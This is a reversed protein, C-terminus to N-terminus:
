EPMRVCDETIFEEANNVIPPLGPAVVSLGQSERNAIEFNLELLLKLPDDKPKIGYAEGVATDLEAQVKRLLHDGPLDLTRYLERLSWQNKTMVKRRLQRLKVASAAVKKVQTLTPSQPFPFSDFVTNSTYRFDGKLTSCRAMFWSWHIGSQLIGFSYDDNLSFVQLADNPHINNHIFEFIPRKTVRACVIYRTIKSIKNLMEPRGRWFKWWRQFHSQRPGTERNTEQKEKEANAQMAPMVYLKIHEFAKGYQMAAFIDQCNNLDIAYRSPLSHPHSLLEDGTLYPYIVAKTLPDRLMMQAQNYSLLFGEHGHTQGQYCAESNANISLKKAQTVDLKASLASNITDLEAIEWSSNQDDGFQTFLKKKGQQEGKIWNVISVHVVADGSWVQTSIAETITGGNGVIYDLGGERSYNQRITNTGVLGARGNPKLEDHARRFWYVCFDARGPIKPYKERLRHVYAAGYEQQMKNKSQYPPNGIITDAKIWDCFLADDCRINQDLNDLPLAQDMDLALNMQVGNLSKNEEDLALKKALMLTIKALEVAFPKIDIGYFQSTKVLSMTGITNAARTFNQHIKTLLQAELRKIERYAVYLFNGSGCAPDLVKFNILEQRLALLDKLTNAAEIRERWPRIITPLVVKQIDAESTYHAGLAHREEKGMSSEFLGGFIAPEVKSWRETAAELLLDIESRTLHIPEITSFIGGNFYPVNHYHSNQPAPRDSGMQRFLGGILDYSSFRNTQCNTLFETFLGRPLLDIDEAFLAVVCQLIFRQATEVTEGREVLRNFVQAVKNAANRTVDIKNNNFVPQKNEPFLFNFATFRDPLEELSVRDVPERLQLDFDYIWFEDFNCLVVYKPRQPVLELWYEFAQQYYKELKEGRKKMELLLRPRWLLDAFKTTKGKAKIRYELEAGAQKYGQHGFAQFLRDCFVQAEGKEDGKLTRAYDIFSNINTLTHTM